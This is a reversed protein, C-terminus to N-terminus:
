RAPQAEARRKLAANMREWGQHYPEFSVFPVFAGAFDEHQTFRVTHAGIREISFTHTGDFLWPIGLRGQWVLKRGPELMLVEPSFSQQDKGVPQMTVELSEGVRLKGDANVFFPNWEPYSELDTLVSWVREPPAHASLGTAGARCSDSFAARRDSDHSETHAM